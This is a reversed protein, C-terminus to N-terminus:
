IAIHSYLQYAISHSLIREIRRERGEGIRRPPRNERTQRFPLRGDVLQRRREVHRLRRDGLMELHQLAGAEDRATARGLRSRTSQFRTRQPLNRIPGLAIAVEPFVAEVTEISM